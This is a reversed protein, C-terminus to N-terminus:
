QSTPTVQHRPGSVEGQMGIWDPIGLGRSKLDDEIGRKLRMIEITLRPFPFADAQWDLASSNHQRETWWERLEGLLDILMFARAMNIPSLRHTPTDSLGRRIREFAAEDFTPRIGPRDRMQSRLNLLFQYAFQAHFQLRQLDGNEADRSDNKRARAPIWIAIGIGAVSGIAQVWAAWDAAKLHGWSVYHYAAVAVVGAVVGSVYLYISRKM